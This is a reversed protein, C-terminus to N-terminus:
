CVLLPDLLTLVMDDFEKKTFKINLISEMERTAQVADQIEEETYFASYEM